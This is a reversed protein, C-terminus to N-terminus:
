ENFQQPTIEEPMGKFKELLKTSLKKLGTFVKPAQQKIVPLAKKEIQRGIMSKLPSTASMANFVIEKSLEIQVQEPTLGIDIYKQQPNIFEQTIAKSADFIKDGIGTMTKKLTKPFFAGASPSRPLPLSKQAAQQKAYDTLIDNKNVFLPEIPNTNLFDLLGMNISYSRLIDLNM